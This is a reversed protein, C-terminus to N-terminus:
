DNDKVWDLPYEGWKHVADSIATLVDGPVQLPIEGHNDALIFGGGQGAKAIAEKVIKEAQEDTWHRMEIGNLNGLISLKGKCATKMEGLDEITSTGVGLTGTEALDDIIPLCRGSALHTATPGKIRPITRKAVEFGTKLYLERPTITPSSVPDFYAIATAGAELQANAWNVCFEENKKMLIDLLDPREYILEIYKDFGMQMVPLSFPSIVLGLIPADDRIKSKLLETAKLVEFLCPSDKIVPTQLSQIDEFSSIIPRGSNAPGDDNFIVEGGFAEIEIAGYFVNNVCDHRYKDRMRIQGEAVNEGKSFYEKLSMGLEKAGHMTLLLFFPVRDPEKHSLATLVRQLSTMKTSNM